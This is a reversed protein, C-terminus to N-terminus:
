DLTQVGGGNVFLTQGSTWSSIPAAFYLVAGAVDEPEGLRELPTRALMRAEVEPTLVSALADTRIAGPAVANVRIAPGYDHALNATMHNVAAKSSAYASIAPSANVSAMSSVTVISGYGAAEMHPACLQALRWGSFVNLAFVSAFREVTIESPGERGAGGGGANNVLVHVSGMADVAREVLRQRDDDDTVDCRVALARRGRARVDDAVAEADDFALDAVVVDAGYAALMRCCARGIGNGGGTVIAVRGTLDLLSPTM